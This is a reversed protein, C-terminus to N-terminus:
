TTDIGSTSLDQSGQTQGEFGDEDIEGTGSSDGAEQSLTNGSDSVATSGGDVTDVEPVGGDFDVPVGNLETASNLEQTEATENSDAGGEINESEGEDDDEKAKSDADDDDKEEADEGDEGDEGDEADADAPNAPANGPLNAMDFSSTGQANVVEVKGPAEVIITDEPPVDNMTTVSGDHHHITVTDGNVLVRTTGVDPQGKTYTSKLQIAPETRAANKNGCGVVLQMALLIAWLLPSRRSPRRSM